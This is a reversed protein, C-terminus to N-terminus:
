RRRARRRRARALGHRRRLRAAPARDPEPAGTAPGGVGEVAVVRHVVEVEGASRLKVLAQHLEAGVRRRLEAKGIFHRRVGVGGLPGDAHLAPDLEVVALLERAVVHDVGEVPDHLVVVGAGRGQGGHVHLIQALHVAVRHLDGHFHRVGDEGLQQHSLPLHADDGDPVVRLVRDAGPREFELREARAHRAGEEAIGVVPSSALRVDVAHHDGVVRVLGGLVVGKQRASISQASWSEWDLM